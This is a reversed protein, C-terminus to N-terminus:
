DRNKWLPESCDVTRFWFKWNYVKIFNPLWISQSNSHEWVSGRSYQVLVSFLLFILPINTYASYYPLHINKWLSAFRCILQLKRMNWSRLNAGPSSKMFTPRFACIMSIAWNFNPARCLSHEVGRFLNEFTPRITCIFVVGPIISTGVNLHATISSTLPRPDIEYFNPAPRM